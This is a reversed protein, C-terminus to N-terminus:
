SASGTRPAFYQTTPGFSGEDSMHHPIEDVTWRHQLDLFGHAPKVAPGKKRPMLGKSADKMDRGLAVLCSITRDRIKKTDRFLDDRSFLTKTRCLKHGM